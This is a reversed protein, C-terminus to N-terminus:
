IFIDLYNKQGKVYLDFKAYNRLFDVKFYNM